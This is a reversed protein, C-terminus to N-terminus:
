SDILKVDIKYKKFKGDAKLEKEKDNAFEDCIYNILEGPEIGFEEAAEEIKALTEDNFKITIEGNSKM